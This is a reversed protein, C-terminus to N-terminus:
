ENEARADGNKRPKAVQQEMSRTEALQRVNGVLAQDGFQEALQPAMSEALPALAYAECFDRYVFPYSEDTMQNLRWLGGIRRLAYEIRPMLPPAMIKEGGSYLPWRDVGWKRLYENVQNWAEDAEVRGQDGSAAGAFNRLEAIKPFWKLERLARGFAVTLCDREIDALSRAYIDVREETLSEGFAEALVM